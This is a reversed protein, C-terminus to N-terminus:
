RFTMGAFTVVSQPDINWQQYHHVTGRLDPRVRLFTYFPSSGCWKLDDRNERVLEWFGPADGNAIREMRQRDREAVRTMEGADAQAEFQNGYRTGMHAMDVGLVWCLESSRRAAIEGLTGLFQRVNEDDEPMGGQYISRFFSGCLIPAVRIDPGFVSQLFVVQFEISHEVSHCYDEMGIANPAAGALEDILPVDTRAEGFPTVYPKRTLGFRDPAGYHSTGLIVFTRDRLEPALRAYAARYSEFGGEPSVHPAAIAAVPATEDPVPDGAMWRRMIEALDNAGNPYGSGAHAPFRAPSEAFERQRQERLREFNEDELFGAKALAAAIQDGVEGARLDGSARYMMEHLERDTREGDFFTLCPILEPPIILITTSYRLSDRLLLGPRDEVPSPMIDLDNRLRPLVTPM